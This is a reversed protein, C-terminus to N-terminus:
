LMYKYVLELIDNKDFFSVHILYEKSMRCKILKRANETIKGSVIILLKTIYCVENTTDNNFPVNFANQIQELLDNIVSKTNGKINGAKVQVGIYEVEGFDNIKSLIIDKGFENIGHTYKVTEFQMKGFLRLLLQTTFLKENREYEPNWYEQLFDNLIGKNFTNLYKVCQHIVDLLSGNFKTIYNIALQDEYIDNINEEYFDLHFDKYKSINELIYKKYDTPDIGLVKLLYKDYTYLNLTIKEQTKIISFLIFPTPSFIEKDYIWVEISDPISEETIHYFKAIDKKPTEFLYKGDSTIHGGKSILLNNSYIDFLNESVRKIFIGKQM